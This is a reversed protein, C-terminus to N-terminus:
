RNKTIKVLNGFELISAKTYTKQKSLNKLGHRQNKQCKGIKLILLWYIKEINKSKWYIQDYPNKLISYGTIRIVPYQLTISPVYELQFHLAPAM